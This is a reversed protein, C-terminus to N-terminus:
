PRPPPRGATRRPSRAPPPAALTTRARAPRAARAPPRAPRDPRGTGPRPAPAAAFAAPSVLRVLLAASGAVAAGAAMALPPGFLSALLGAQAAGLPTFGTLAQGHLGLVRGRLRDPTSVQIRTLAAVMFWEQCLGVVGLLAASLWLRRSASFALLALAWTLGTRLHAAGSLPRSRAALLVGGALAGAGSVAMLLGFGMAGAGLVQGAFLPVLTLRNMASLSFVAVVVLLSGLPPNLRVYAVAEAVGGGRPPRGRAGAGQPISLVAGAAALTCVAAALGCAPLGAVGILVGALAPGAISAAHWTSASCAVASTLDDRAVLEGALAQRAPLDVVQVCGWSAATALVAWYPAAHWATLGALALAPLALLAQTLAVARQRPVRDAVIGGLPGAVLVPLNQVAVVLGVALASRTLQLVLWAQGAGQTWTGVSGAAQAALFRRYGRARLAGFRASDTV